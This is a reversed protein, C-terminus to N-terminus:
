FSMQGVWRSLARHSARGLSVNNGGGLESEVDTEWGGESGLSVMLHGPRTEMVSHACVRSYAGVLTEIARPRYSSRTSRGEARPQVGCHCMVGTM